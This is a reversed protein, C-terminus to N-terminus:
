SHMSSCMRIMEKPCQREWTETHRYREEAIEPGKETIKHHTSGMMKINTLLTKAGSKRGKRQINNRALQKVLYSSATEIRDSAADASYSSWMQHIAEIERSRVHARQARDWGPIVEMVRVMEPGWTQESKSRCSAQAFLCFENRFLLVQRDKSKDAWTGGERTVTHHRIHEQCCSAGGKENWPWHGGVPGEKGGTAGVKVTWENM